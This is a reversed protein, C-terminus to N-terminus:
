SVSACFVEFVQRLYPTLYQLLAHKAESGSGKKCILRVAWPAQEM